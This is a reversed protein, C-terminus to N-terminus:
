PSFALRYIGGHDSLYIAGGPAVELSLIRGAHDYVVSQSVASRRFSDLTVRRLQGNNWAGFFLRGESASGLGCGRCFAVGTPAIPTGYWLAPLVPNPGDQNTNSPPAPPTACTQRPGWGHNRNWRLWNLEDNCSPGNETEWLRGTVPDFALGFSNRIGYAWVYSGPAVNGAASHM